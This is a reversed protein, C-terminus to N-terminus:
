YKGAPDSANPPVPYFASIDDDIAAFSGPTTAQNGPQVAAAERVDVRGQVPLSGATDGQQLLARTTYYPETYDAAGGHEEVGTPQLLLRRFTFASSTSQIGWTEFPNPTLDLLGAWDYTGAAFL